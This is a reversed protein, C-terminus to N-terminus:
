GAQLLTPIYCLQRSRCTLEIALIHRACLTRAGIFQDDIQFFNVQQEKLAHLLQSNALENYHCHKATLRVAQATLSNTLLKM